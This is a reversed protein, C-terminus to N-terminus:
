KLETIEVNTDICFGRCQHGQFDVASLSRLENQTPEYGIRCGSERSASKFSLSSSSRLTNCFGCGAMYERRSRCHYPERTIYNQTEVHWKQAM